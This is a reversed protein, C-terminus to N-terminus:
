VACREIKTIRWEKFGNKKIQIKGYNGIRTDGVNIIDTTFIKGMGKGKHTHGHINAIIQNKHNVLFKDLEISGSYVPLKKGENNTWIVNATNSSFPGNHTLLIIKSNDSPFSKALENLAIEFKEDCPLFNPKKPDDIWPYGKWAIKDYNEIKYRFDTEETYPNSISGGLGFLYLDSALQFCKKHINISKETLEPPNDSVMNSTDHNGPIYIVKDCLKELISLLEGIEKEPAKIVEQDGKGGQSLTVHDGTSIIYDPIYNTYKCKSVIKELQEKQNHIDSVLLINFESKDEKM